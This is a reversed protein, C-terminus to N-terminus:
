ASVRLMSLADRLGTAYATARESEARWHEANAVATLAVDYLEVVQAELEAVEVSTVAEIEVVPALALNGVVAGGSRTPSAAPTAPIPAQGAPILTLAAPIPAQGAVKYFMRRGERRREIAGKQARAQLTRVSIGLAESADHPSLWRPLTTIRSDM